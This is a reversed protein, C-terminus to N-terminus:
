VNRDWHMGLKTTLLTLAYHVDTLYAYHEPQSELAGSPRHCPQQHGEAQSTRTAISSTSITTSGREDNTATTTRRPCGAMTPRGGNTTRGQTYGATRVVTDGWTTM